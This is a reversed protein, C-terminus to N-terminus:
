DQRVVQLMIAISERDPPPNAIRSAAVEYLAPKPFRYSVTMLRDALPEIEYEDRPALQCVRIDRESIHLGGDICQEIPRAEQGIRIILGYCM